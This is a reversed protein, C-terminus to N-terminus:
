GLFLNGKIKQVDIKRKLEDADFAYLPSIELKITVNGEADRPIKCGAAELWSGYLNCMDQRATAPSDVGQRNKVPSFETKRVVELSLTRSAHPLADFIFTEFKIGNKHSPKIRSGKDDLHPITKEAIHYPLKFGGQNEQEVFALSLMHIAISGASFKLSGDDNHAFVEEETLDSYERVGIEGNIKCIVGLKEEPYAKQIIKNSMDANHLIHYGVFIPDCVQTLANDVQFYFIHAIGRNKMDAVAGSDWLGKLVGGHGNPNMFIHGPADLILKGKRDIAPIMEQQFFFIDEKPLQFFRQQEFFAVTEQYNLQSTMIYWPIKTQYKRNLALLKEAHLQFLSKHKVPTIPFKGKPGKYGLRTSQGGAVLVVAIKGRYLLQEGAALAQRDSTRRADLSIVSAPELNDRVTESQHMFYVQRVLYDLLTFDITGIQKLLQDQQQRDLDHWYKFVHGQGFQYVNDIQQQIRPNSHKIM